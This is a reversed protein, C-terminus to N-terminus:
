IKPPVYARYFGLVKPVYAVTEAYNPVKNGARIVANEGANYGALALELNGNFMKILDRLYRTGAYINDVPDFSNTVGYRKATEPILQMMGQAGKPSLAKPNYGSEAKIVAHVLAPEIGNVRSALEIIHAFRKMEEDTPKWAPMSQYGLGSVGKVAQPRSTAERYVMRYRRDTQPINTFHVVGREDTFSYIDAWAPSLAAPLLALGAALPGLRRKILFRSVMQPM